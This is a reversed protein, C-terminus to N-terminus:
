LLLCSFSFSTTYLNCVPMWSPSDNRASGFVQEVHPQVHPTLTMLLWCCGLPIVCGRVIKCGSISVFYWGVKMPPIPRLSCHKYCCILHYMHSHNSEMVGPIRLFQYPYPLGTEHTLQGFYCFKIPKASTSRSVNTDMYIYVCLSRCCLVPLFWTRGGKSWTNMARCNWPCPEYRSSAAVSGCLM